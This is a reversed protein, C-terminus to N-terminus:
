FFSHEPGFCIQFSLLSSPNRRQFESASVQASSHLAAFSATGISSRGRSVLRIYGLTGQQRIKGGIGESFLALLVDVLDISNTCLQVRLFIILYHRVITILCQKAYSTRAVTQDALRLLSRRRCLLWGHLLYLAAAAAVARVPKTDLITNNESVVAGAGLFLYVLM